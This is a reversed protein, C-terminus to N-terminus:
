FNAPAYFVEDSKRAAIRWHADAAKTLHQAAILERVQSLTRVFNRDGHLPILKNACFFLHLRECRGNLNAESMGRNAGSEAIVAVDARGRGEMYQGSQATRYLRQIPLQLGRRTREGNGSPPLGECNGQEAANKGDRAGGGLGSNM